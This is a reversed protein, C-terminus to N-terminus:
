LLCKDIVEYKTKNNKNQKKTNQKQKGIKPHDGGFHKTIIALARKYMPEAKDYLGRKKAVLGM